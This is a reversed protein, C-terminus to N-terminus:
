ISTCILIHRVDKLVLSCGLDIELYIDGIGIIKSKSTNGMKTIGFDGAIYNVFLDINSCVYSSAGSDIMWATSSDDIHLCHGKALIM